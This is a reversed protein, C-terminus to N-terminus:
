RDADNHTFFEVRKAIVATEADKLSDFTGVHYNKGLHGVKAAWKRIQSNWYVGRVGSSNPSSKSRNESNQKATVVRLHRPNVCCRTRCVHDVQDNVGLERVFTNFSFRHALTSKGGVSLIGYGDKQRAANWIWCHSTDQIQISNCFKEIPNSFRSVYLPNGYKRVRNYHKSCMGKALVHSSCEGVVCTTM